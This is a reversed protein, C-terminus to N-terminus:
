CVSWRCCASMRRMGREILKKYNRRADRLKGLRLQLRALHFLAENNDKDLELWREASKLADEQFGYSSAVRTAKRAIDVSKSLEAALRFERAAELYDMRNLAIEAQVLHTSADSPEASDAVPVLSLFSLATVVFVAALRRIFQQM